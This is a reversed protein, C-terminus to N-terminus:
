SIKSWNVRERSLEKLRRVYIDNEPSTLMPDTALIQQAIERCYRVIESDRALNAVRLEMPLGSQQTGDIDGPGRLRMDAEAIEFGDTTSVMTQMRKRTEDTLQTDTMLICYSQDAGRGVRGRLQHLQSLGFREASEIVMVSANPVNVGVEIVTTAVMIQARGSVFEKMASEKEDSKLRGHVMCVRYEPFASKVYEFGETLNKFDIRESEEILPYVVYVQHGKQLQQRIFNNLSNRNSHFYHETRVPKRGPPLENIVSVDLDGYITMALTRPIPTATMVLIHPPITSKSWLKSRQAVGFRHQEDVVAFALNHFVVTEEILAHTGIIINLEGNALQSLIETRRKKRTSGTLLAITVPMSDLMQSINEFHQTALIETPAMLCTQYGNGIAILMSMLAVVTKGSGVDGQLLRNMQIGRGFDARIERVANKQANTPEFPLHHNYFDALLQGSQRFVVGSNETRMTNRQRLIKLQIYFLEEFKMRYRARELTPTNPPFHMTRIAEGRTMLNLRRILTATLTEPIGNSGIEAFINSILNHIERADLGIRKMRESTNYFPQLTGVASNKAGSKEIEPHAINLRGNFVTPKGFLMFEDNQNISRKIYNFGRFWVIEVTRTGDTFQSTLRQARGTGVLKIDLFRGRLQVYPMDGRLESIAYIHSRDIYKYPFDLLLDEYTEIRQDVRLFEARKPTIGRLYNISKTSLDSMDICLYCLM